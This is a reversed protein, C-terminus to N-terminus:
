LTIVIVFSMSIIYKKLPSALFYTTKLSAELPPEHMCSVNKNDILRCINIVILQDKKKETVGQFLKNQVLLLGFGQAEESLIFFVVFFFVFM